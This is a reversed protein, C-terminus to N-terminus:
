GARDGPYQVDALMYLSRKQLEVIESEFAAKRTLLDRLQHIDVALARQESVSLEGRGLKYLYDIIM